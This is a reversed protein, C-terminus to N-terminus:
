SAAGKGCHPLRMACQGTRRALWSPLWSRTDKSGFAGPWAAGKEPLALGMPPPMRDARLDDMACRPPPVPAAAPARPEVPGRRTMNASIDDMMAAPHPDLARMRNLAQHDVDHFNLNRMAPRAPDIAVAGRGALNQNGVGNAQVHGSSTATSMDM